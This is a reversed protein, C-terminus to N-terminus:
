KLKFTKPAFRYALYLSFTIYLVTFIIVGAAFYLTPAQIRIFMYCVFYTVACVISYTHSKAQMHIDYPQLLYYIVLYHVSFFVSMFIISVPLLIYNVPNDTGGSVFLLLPLLAAIVLSPILNITIITKLRAKFLSLIADPQRFFRYSLMSHDCNFFMAQTITSGQNLIYMIFVFYPLLRMLISNTPAKAEPIVAVCFLAAASIILLAATLKKASNTLLKQHRSVFVDNLYAYGKNSSHVSTESLRSLYNKQQIQGAADTTNFVVANVTLIQKYLRRYVNTRRLYFAAPLAAAAFILTMVAFAFGPVAFGTFPLGYGAAAGLLLIGFIFKWNKESLLIKKREFIQLVLGACAIKGLAAAFPLMLIFYAPVHALLGFVISAPFFTIWQSAIYLIFSSLAYYKDDIRMLIVAYYKEKTVSLIETNVLAGSLTFCFLLHVYSESHPLPMLFIPWFVMIGLYLFKGAFLWLIEVAIILFSIFSKLNTKAYLSEPFLRGVLPLKRLRYVFTNFNYAHSLKLSILLTKIM